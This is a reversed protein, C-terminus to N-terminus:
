EYRLADAPNAAAAKISRFSVTTLAIILTIVGATLYTWLNISIRYAFNRLWQNM